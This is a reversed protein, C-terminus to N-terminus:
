GKQVTVVNYFNLNFCSMLQAWQKETPEVKLSDDANGWQAEYWDEASLGFLTRFIGEEYLLDEETVSDSLLGELGDSTYERIYGEKVLRKFEELNKEECAAEAKKRNTFVNKPNGGDTRTYYEDNYEFGQEMLVYFTESMKAGSLLLTGGLTMWQTM